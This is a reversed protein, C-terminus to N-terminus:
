PSTTWVLNGGVTHPYFTDGEVTTVTAGNAGDINGTVSGNVQLIDVGNDTTTGICVDGTAFVNLLYDNNFFGITAMNGTNDYGAYKFGFYAVGLANIGQGVFFCNTDGPNMGLKELMIPSTFSYGATTNITVSQSASGNYFLSGDTGISLAGSGYSASGDDNISIETGGNTGGIVIRGDPSALPWSFGSGSIWAAVWAGLSTGSVTLSDGPGTAGNALASATSSTLASGATAAYGASGSTPAYSATSSTLANGATAASGSTTAFSATGSQGVTMGQYNGTPVVPGATTPSPDARSFIIFYSNHLIFALALIRLGCAIKNTMYDTDM